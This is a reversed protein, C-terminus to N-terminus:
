GVLFRHIRNVILGYDIDAPIGTNVEIVDGNIALSQLEKNSFLKSIEQMNLEDRHGKHRDGSTARSAFRSRLVGASATCVVQIARCRSDEIIQGVKPSDIEPKFNSEVIAIAGSRMLERLVTYMMLYSAAGIKRSWERDGIGMTDFLGEKIDDRSILPLDLTTALYRALTTKGSAPLGGVIILAGTNM